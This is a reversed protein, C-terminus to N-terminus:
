AFASAARFPHGRGAARTEVERVTEVHVTAPHRLTGRSRLEHSAGSEVPVAEGDAPSAVGGNKGGSPLPDVANQPTDGFLVLVGKVLELADTLAKIPFLLHAERERVTRGGFGQRVHGAVPTQPPRLCRGHIADNVRGPLVMERLDVDRVQARPGCSGTLRAATGSSSVLHRRAHTAPM